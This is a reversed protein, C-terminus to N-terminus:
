WTRGERGWLFRDEDLGGYDPDLYVALRSIRGDRFQFVNCFRGAPTKGAEWTAGSVTAGSTTGEVVLHDGSPLFRYDSPDHHTSAVLSGLGTMVEIFQERGRGLGYKPFYFTFDETFLDLVSPDQLDLRRFYELAVANNAVIDSGTTVHNM